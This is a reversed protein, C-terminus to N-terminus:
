LLRAHRDMAQSGARAHSVPSVTGCVLGVTQRVSTGCCGRNGAFGVGFESASIRHRVGVRRDAARFYRLLGSERRVRCRVRQLKLLRRASRSGQMTRAAPQPVRSRGEVVRSAAKAPDPAARCGSSRGSLPRDRVPPAQVLGTRGVHLRLEAHKLTRCPVHGGVAAFGHHTRHSGPNGRCERAASRRAPSRCRIKEPDSVDRRLARRHPESGPPPLADHPCPM